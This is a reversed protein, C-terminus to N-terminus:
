SVSTGTPRGPLSAWYATLSKPSTIAPLHSGTQPEVQLQLWPTTLNRQPVQHNDGDRNIEDKTHVLCDGPAMVYAAPNIQPVARQLRPPKGEM